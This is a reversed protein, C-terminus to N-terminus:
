KYRLLKQTHKLRILASEMQPVSMGDPQFKNQDEPDQPLDPSYEQMFKKQDEANEEDIETMLDEIEDDDLELVDRMLRKKSLFVGIVPQAITLAQIRQSLIELEKLQSYYSDVAYKFIIQSKVEDFEEPTMIGKLVVQTRLLDEFVNAFQQRLMEIWRAFRLEDRSITTGGSGFEVVNAQDPDIRAAPVNLCRYLQRRFTELDDIVGLNQGGEFQQVDTKQQGDRIAFWYDETMAVFRRDESIEGTSNCTYIGSDLAFTHYDHYIEEKDIGLTGVDMREDLFKISSIFTSYYDITNNLSLNVHLPEINHYNSWSAVAPELYSWSKTDNMYLESNEADSCRTLHPIMSDGVVLDKAEVKGKNWVPFKHDPTCIIEKGNDLTIKMVQAKHRTVGAFTILGPAFKGTKPDASYVWNQKGSEHEAQLETITLTRGDLLPIKTDMALCANYTLRNKFKAMIDKFSQEAKAKPLNGVDILFKRKESARTVRYIIIADELMRYQNLTRLAKHLHSVVLKGSPDWIGSISHSVADKTLPIAGIGEPANPLFSQNGSDIGNDSYVWYEKFNNSMGYFEDRPQDLSTTRIYERVMKIKRPDIYRLQQIGNQPSAEDIVKHFYIRGDVYWRRFMDHGKKRFDMIGLIIDFEEGLTRQLSAPIKTKDPFTLTVPQAMLNDNVIAESVIQEIADDIIPNTAADRYKNILSNESKFTNDVGITNNAVAGMPSGLEIASDTQSPSVPSRLVKKDEEPQKIFLGFFKRSGLIAM